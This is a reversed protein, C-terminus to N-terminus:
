LIYNEKYLERDDVCDNYHEIWDYIDKGQMEYRDGTYFAEIDGDRIAQRVVDVDLDCYEAVFRVSYYDNQALYSHNEIDIRTTYKTSEERESQKNM